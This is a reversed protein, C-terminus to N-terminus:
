EEKKSFDYAGVRGNAYYKNLDLYYPTSASADVMKKAGYAFIGAIALGGVALLVLPAIGGEVIEVQEDTLVEAGAPTVLGQTTRKNKM